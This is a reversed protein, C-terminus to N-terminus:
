GEFPEDEDAATVVTPHIGANQKIIALEDTEDDYASEVGTAKKLLELKAQLPPIMLEGPETHDTNDVEIPHLRNTGADEPGDSMQDIKDALKRLIESAKM